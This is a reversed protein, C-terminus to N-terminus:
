CAPSPELSDFLAGYAAASRSVTFGRAHEQAGPPPVGQDLARRLARALSSVDGVPVLEGFRGDALVERPGVPCDTSVVPIGSALAEILVNGFGEYRSALAFCGARQMWRMPQKVQGALEAVDELGLKVLLAQLGPREHGEGLLLLRTHPRSAHMRAFAQILVPIDKEVSLRSVSIVVRLAPDSLWRHLPTADHSSPGAATLTQLDSEELVPNSIVLPAVGHGLLQMLDDRVGGSVAVVAAARGYAWRVLPPLVRYRWSGQQQIQRSLPAHETVINHCATGSLAVAAVAAVNSHPFGSLLWQPRRARVVAALKRLASLSGSAGLEIVNLGPPPMLEAGAMSHVVLDVALGQRACAAALRLLSTEGGGLRLHPIYVCLRRAPATALASATAQGLLRRKLKRWLQFPNFGVHKADILTRQDWASVTHLGHSAPWAPDPLIRGLAEEVYETPTMRLVRHLAIAAGYSMLCDQGPRVLEPGNAGALQFFGGAMRASRVDTKVPNNAHPLWPGKLENAYYLCLNDYPGLAINTFALWYRGEWQVLSPDAVPVGQVMTVWPQWAGGEDVRHLVCDGSAASEHVGLRQGEITVVLPYSVHSSGGLAVPQRRRVIGLPSLTLMEIRGIGRREDFYECYLKDFDGPLGMPDAWYGKMSPETLWRVPLRGGSRVWEAVPANVLGVTWFESLWRSRQLDLWAHWRGALRKRRAHRMSPAPATHVVTNPDPGVALRWDVTAQRVLCTVADALGRLGQRYDPSARRHLRRLRQWPAGAQRRQLLQLAIGHRRTIAGLLPQRLHLARGREDCVAWQIAGASQGDWPDDQAALGFACLSLMIEAPEQPGLLGQPDLTVTQLSFLPDTSLARLCDQMWGPLVGAPLLLRVRVPAHVPSSPLQAALLGQSDGLARRASELRRRARAAGGTLAM